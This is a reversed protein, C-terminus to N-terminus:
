IFNSRHRGRVRALALGYPRTPEGLWRMHPLARLRILAVTDHNKEGIARPLPASSPAHSTLDAYDEVISVGSALLDGRQKSAGAM